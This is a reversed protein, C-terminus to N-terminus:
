TQVATIMMMRSRRDRWKAEIWAETQISYIGLMGPVHVYELTLAREREPGLGGGCTRTMGNM